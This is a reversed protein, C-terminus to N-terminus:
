RGFQFSFVHVNQLDGLSLYAYDLLISRSSLPIRVGGGGSLGFQGKNGTAREDNYFRKGGRLFVFDRFSYELGGATQLNSDIADSFAIEGTLRHQGNGQGLSSEAGGYLDTGVSFRFLTPLDTDQTSLDTRLIQPAVVDTDIRRTILSGRAKSSPGINAIVAGITLGYIGTRFQTGADLAVWSISADSMGETVVKLSSGLELRDTLRRAYGLGFATSSWSFTSGTVASGTPNSEDSRPIDGSSLTTVHAGLVGGLTPLSLGFYNLSINLDQYLAERTASASFSETAAAGAPNWYWANPGRESSAVAGAMAQARAGIGIQLFNAGRTGQRNPPNKDNPNLVVPGDQAKAVSAVLALSAVLLHRNRIM